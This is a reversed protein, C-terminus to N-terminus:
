IGWCNPKEGVTTAIARPNDAGQWAQLDKIVHRDVTLYAPVPAAFTSALEASKSMIWLFLLTSRQGLLWARACGHLKADAGKRYASAIRARHCGGSRAHM